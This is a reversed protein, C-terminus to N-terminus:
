LDCAFLGGKDKLAKVLSFYESQHAYDLATLGDNSVTNVKVKSKIILDMVVDSSRCMVATMLPTFGQDDTINCNAFNSFLCNSLEKSNLVSAIHFPTSGSLLQVIGNHKGSMLVGIYNDYTDDEYINGALDNRYISENIYRSSLKYNLSNVTKSNINAGAGILYTVAPECQHMVSIHLPTLGSMSPTSM